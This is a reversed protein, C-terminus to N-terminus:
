DREASISVSVLLGAKVPFGLSSGYCVSKTVM